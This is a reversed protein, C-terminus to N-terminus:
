VLTLEHLEMLQERVEPPAYHDRDAVRYRIQDLHDVAELLAMTDFDGEEDPLRDSTLEAM